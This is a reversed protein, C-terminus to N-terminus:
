DFAGESGNAASASPFPAEFGGSIGEDVFDKTPDGMREFPILNLVQVGTMFLGYGKYKVKDADSISNKVIARVRVDSGNGLQIESPVPNTKSDVVTPPDYEIGRKVNACPREVRVFHGDYGEYLGEFKPNHKVRIDSDKAMDLNTKDLLLDVTWRPDYKTDPYVLKAYMAKGALVVITPEDSM